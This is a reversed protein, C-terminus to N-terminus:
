QSVRYYTLKIFEETLNCFRHSRSCIKHLSNLIYFSSSSFLNKYTGIYSKWPNEYQVSMSIAEQKDSWYFYFGLFELKVRPSNVWSFICPFATPQKESVGSPKTHCSLNRVYVRTLTRPKVSSNLIRWPTCAPWFTYIISCAM